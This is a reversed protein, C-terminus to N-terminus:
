LESTHEESRYDRQAQQLAIVGGAYDNQRVASLASQVYANADAAQAQAPSQTQTQVTASAAAASPFAKELESVQGQVDAKKSCATLFLFPLIMLLLIMFSVPESHSQGSYNQWLERSSM